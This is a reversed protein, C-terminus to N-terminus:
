VNLKRPVVTAHFVVDRVAQISSCLFIFANLPCSLGPLAFDHAPKTWVTRIAAILDVDLGKLIKLTSMGSVLVM